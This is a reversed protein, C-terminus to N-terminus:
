WRARITIRTRDAAQRGRDTRRPAHPVATEFAVGRAPRAPALHHERSGAPGGGRALRPARAPWRAPPEGRRDQDRESAGLRARRRPCGLSSGCRCGTGAPLRHGARVGRARCPRGEGPRWPGGRHHSRPRGAPRDARGRHSPRRRRPFPPHDRRLERGRPDRPGGPGRPSRAHGATAGPENQHSAALQAGLLVILWSVYLWALFIPIAGMGAYIANYSAVGVQVKVYLLLAGQWLLGATLGGLAASRFGTRVNPMIMYLATLAVCSFVLSVFNLAFDILTGLGMTQSLFKVVGSSKAATGFAVAALMLLPTVVLLTTYDTVQRLLPRSSKADWIDNLATEITSLLSISTYALVLIGVTGLKSFDTQEVFGLLKEFGQLLSPNGGFTLQLYPRISEDVLRQYFGFGKIVSFAFALFPVVSLVSFYTLAAARFNVRKDRLGRVTAYLIRSARYLLARSRRVEDVGVSWIRAGFFKQAREWTRRANLEM